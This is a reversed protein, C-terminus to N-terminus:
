GSPARARRHLALAGAALLAAALIPWPAAPVALSAAPALTAASVPTGAGLPEMRASSAVPAADVDMRFNYLRGWDLANGSPATWEIRDPYLAVTWDNSADGDADEFGPNAVSLSPLLPVSFSRLQSEYDFNMLAWEYHHVGGGLDSAVVALQVRGQGTDVLTSAEGPAPSGADVWVDLISGLQMPAGPHDAFAWSSGSFTPTVLRHGLSNLLNTDNPALYWAEVFYSAGATQLDPEQVVLRHGFADHDAAGFHDRVDDVPVADFHSGLSTWTRLFADLEHRPALHTQNLNTSVGYQDECGAYLVHGGACPCGTNTAFFAHKLDSRGIQELVGGALRYMHLALYPHRGVPSDPAIARFWAIDGPGNNVLEAAPALAVRGGPERAAQTTSALLTLEVDVPDELDAICDGAGQAVIGEPLPAIRLTADLVGVFSGALEPRGLLAALAPTVLLDANALGLEGGDESLRAHPRTVDLWAQGSADVVSLQSREGSLALRVGDLAVRQGHIALTFGGAHRISAAAFGEFDGGPAGFAVESEPVSVAFALGGPRTSPATSLVGELRIGLDALITAEFALQTEGGVLEQGAAPLAGLLAAGLAVRLRLRRLARARGRM